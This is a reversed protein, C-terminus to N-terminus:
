LNRYFEFTVQPFHQEGNFNFDIISLDSVDLKQVFGLTVEGAAVDTTISAGVIQQMVVSSSPSAKVLRQHKHITGYSQTDVVYFANGAVANTFEPPTTPKQSNFFGVQYEAWIDQSSSVYNDFLFNGTVKIHGDYPVNFTMSSFFQTYNNMSTNNVIAHRYNFPDWRYEPTSRQTLIKYLPSSTQSILGDIRNNLYVDNNILPQTFGEITSSSRVRGDGPIVVTPSFNDIGQLVTENIPM